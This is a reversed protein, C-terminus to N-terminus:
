RAAQRAASKGLQQWNPVLTPVPKANRTVPPASETRPSKDVPKVETVDENTKTAETSPAETRSVSRITMTPATPTSFVPERQVDFSLVVAHILVSVGIAVLIRRETRPSVANFGPLTLENM